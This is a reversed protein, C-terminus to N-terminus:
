GFDKKVTLGAYYGKETALSHYFNRDLTLATMNSQYSQPFGPTLVTFHGVVSTTALIVFYDLLLFSFNKKEKKGGGQVPRQAGPKVAKKSRILGIHRSILVRDYNKASVRWLICRGAICAIKFAATNM